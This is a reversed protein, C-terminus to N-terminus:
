KAAILSQKEKKLQDVVSRSIKLTSAVIDPPILALWQTLSMDAVRDSKYLEIWVLQETESTNEIYHGSNDPFVATDGARFDFTRAISGGLFVTARAQGQHFYLWEGANPNWHLERLGQPELTIIAAAITTAIPFNRSDVNALTGGGGPALPLKVQSL